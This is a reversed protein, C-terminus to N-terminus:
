SVPENPSFGAPTATTPKSHIITCVQENMGRVVSLSVLRLRDGDLLMLVALCAVKVFRCLSQIMTTAQKTARSM